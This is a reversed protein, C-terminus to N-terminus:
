NKSFSLLRKTKIAIETLLMKKNVNQEIYNQSKEFLAVKPGTGLWGSKLVQSISAIEKNTISPAGFTIFKRKNKKM